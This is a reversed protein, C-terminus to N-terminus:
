EALRRLGYHAVLRDLAITLVVKGSRQPWGFKREADELGQLDCCVMRLVEDLQPGVAKMAAEFRQRATIARDSIESPDRPAARRGSGGGTQMSWDTTVRQTMHGLTFDRRLREGAEFQAASILPRGNAGRRRRLWGLPTESENVDLRMTQGEHAIDKQTILQHQARFPHSRAMLRRYYSLGAPTPRWIEANQHSEVAGVLDLKELEQLMRPELTAVPKKWRNSEVFLGIDKKDARALYSGPECLRRFIRRVERDFAHPVAARRHRPTAEDAKADPNSNPMAKTM